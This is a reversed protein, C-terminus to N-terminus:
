HKIQLLNEICRDASTSSSSFFLEDDHDPNWHQYHSSTTNGPFRCVCVCVCVVGPITVGPGLMEEWSALGSPM